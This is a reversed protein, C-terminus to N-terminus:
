FEALHLWEFWQKPCSHKFSRLYGEICQNVRKIQGDSQPHYALSM